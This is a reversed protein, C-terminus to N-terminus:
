LLIRFTSELLYLLPHGNENLNRQHHIFKRKAIKAFIPELPLTSYDYSHQLDFPGYENILRNTKISGFLEKLKRPRYRALFYSVGLSDLLPGTQEIGYRRLSCITLEFEDKPLYKALAMMQRYPAAKSSLHPVTILIKKKEELNM